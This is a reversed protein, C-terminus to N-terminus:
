STTGCRSAQVCGYLAKLLRCYLTGAPTVYKKIAPLVEVILRTLSKNCHVYVPPGEMETQIFAGKVDIKGIRTMGESAAVALCAMISDPFLEQDQEKENFVLRSKFKDHEGTALFKEDSFMHCNYAKGKVDEKRTLLLGNLQVFLLEIEEKDAREIAKLREGTEKSKNLKVAM